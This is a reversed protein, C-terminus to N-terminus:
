LRKAESLSAFLTNDSTAKTIMAKAEDSKEHVVRRYSGETASASDAFVGGRKMRNKAHVSVDEPRAM